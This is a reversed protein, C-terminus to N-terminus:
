KDKNQAAKASRAAPRGNVMGVPRLRVHLSQMVGRVVAIRDRERGSDKASSPRRNVCGKCGIVFCVPRIWRDSPKIPPARRLM